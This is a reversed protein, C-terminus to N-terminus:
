TKKLRIANDVLFFDEVRKCRVHGRGSGNLIRYIELSRESSSTMWNVDGSVYVDISIFDKYADKKREIWGYVCVGKDDKAYLPVFRDWQVFPLMRLHQKVLRTFTRSEIIKEGM